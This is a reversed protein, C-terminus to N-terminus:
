RGPIPIPRPRSCDRPMPSRWSTGLYMVAVRESIHRVARLDHSIMLLTLNFRRRLRELLNLLQARISADVASTPEDCILVKPKLLLARAIVVRQLQGGSCQEPYRSAIAPDLGVEKLTERMSSARESPTGMKHQSLPALLSDEIRMKPDLAGAPNQFVMQVSRRFRRMDRGRLALVDQGDITVSGSDPRIHNLVLRALTSKGCGSEGVLGLVEGRNITFSVGDVSRVSRASTSRGFSPGNQIPFHKVLNEVQVLPPEPNRDTTTQEPM